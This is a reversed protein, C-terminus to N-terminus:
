KEKEKQIEIQRTKIYADMCSKRPTFYIAMHPADLLQLVGPTILVLVKAHCLICQCKM